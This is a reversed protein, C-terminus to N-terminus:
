IDIKSVDEIIFSANGILCNYTDAGSLVGISGECRANIGELIDNKTDGFKLVHKPTPISNKEMLAYIMYPYPRGKLVDESSIYDDIIEDLNLKDIITKQIEKNYGTNLTVKIDKKRIGEFIDPLNTNILEIKNDLFYYDKLKKNFHNYLEQQIEKKKREHNMNYIENNKIYHDLVEYKNAGHWKNIENLNVGLKYDQLTEHLASYVIGNEQIITGAMDFVVMKINNYTRFSNRGLLHLSNM